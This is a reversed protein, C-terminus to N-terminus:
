ITKIILSINEIVKTQGHLSKILEKKLLQNYSYLCLKKYIGQERFDNDVFSSHRSYIKKNFGYKYEIFGVHGILRQNKIAIFSSFKNKNFYRNKYFKLSIKRNFTKFFLYQIDILDKEITRRYIIKKNM